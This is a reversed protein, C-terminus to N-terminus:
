KKKLETIENQIEELNEDNYIGDHAQISLKSIRQLIETIEGMAGDATNIMEIGDNINNHGQDLGKIRERMSESVALGAADDGARNIKYGSSLKELNKQLATQNTNFNRLTNITPTNDRIRM